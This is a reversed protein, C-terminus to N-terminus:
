NERIRLFFGIIPENLVIELHSLDLNFATPGPEIENTLEVKGVLEPFVVVRLYNLLGRDTTYHTLM